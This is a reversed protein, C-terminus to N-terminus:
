FIKSTRIKLKQSIIAIVMNAIFEFFIRKIM